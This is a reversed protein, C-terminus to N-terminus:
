VKNGEYLHLLLLPKSYLFTKKEGTVMDRASKYAVRLTWILILVSIQFSIDLHAFYGCSIQNLTHTALKAYFSTDKNKISDINLHISVKYVQHEEWTVLHSLLRFYPPYFDWSKLRITM